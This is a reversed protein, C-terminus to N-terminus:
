KVKSSLIEGTQADICYEYESTGYDFEVEYYKSYQDNEYDIEVDVIKSKEAGADKLAIDLAADKSIKSGGFLGCGSLLLTMSLAAVTLIKKM